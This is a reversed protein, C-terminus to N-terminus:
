QLRRPLIPPMGGPCNNKCQSFVQRLGYPCDYVELDAENNDNLCYGLVLPRDGYNDTGNISSTSRVTPCVVQFVFDATPSVM